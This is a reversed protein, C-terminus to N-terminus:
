HSVESDLKGIEKICGLLKIASLEPFVLRLYVVVLKSCITRRATILIMIELCFFQLLHLLVNLRCEEAYPQVCFELTVQFSCLM